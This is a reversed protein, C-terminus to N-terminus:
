IAWAYLWEHAWLVRAQSESWSRLIQGFHELNTGLSAVNRM